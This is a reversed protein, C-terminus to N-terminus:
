HPVRKEELQRMQRRAALAVPGRGGDGDIALQWCYAAVDSDGMVSYEDGLLLWIIPMDTVEDAVAVLESVSEPVMGLSQCVLAAQFHEAVHNADDAFIAQLIHNCAAYEQLGAKCCALLIAAQPANVNYHIAAECIRSALDYKKAKLLAHVLSLAKELDVNYSKVSIPLKLRRGSTTSSSFAPTACVM